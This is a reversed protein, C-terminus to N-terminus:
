MQQNGALVLATFRTIGEQRADEALREFLLTGIGRGQQADDVTFAVEALTPDRLPIYNGLAVLQDRVEAVIAHGGIIRQLLDHGIRPMPGHFRRARSGPSLRDLLARVAPLDPAQYPRLLVQGGDRLLAATAGLIPTATGM